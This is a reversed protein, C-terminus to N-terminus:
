KTGVLISPSADRDSSLPFALNKVRLFEGALYSLIRVAHAALCFCPACIVGGCPALVCNCWDPMLLVSRSEPAATTFIYYFTGTKGFSPCHVVKATDDEFDLITLCGGDAGVALVDRKGGSLRVATLCRLNSRTEVRTVLRLFTREEEEDDEDDNDKNQETSTEIRYLEVCGGARLIAIEQRSPGTFEGPVSSVISGARKLTVDLLKLESATPNSNAM